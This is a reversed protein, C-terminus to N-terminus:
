GYLQINLDEILSTLEQIHRDEPKLSEIYRTLFEKPTEGQKLAQGTHRRSRVLRYYRGAPTNRNKLFYIKVRIRYLKEEAWIKLAKWLSIRDPRESDSVAAAATITRKGSFRHKRFIIFAAIAAASILIGFLILLPAASFSVEEGGEGAPMNIGEGLDPGVADYTEKPFLRSLFLLFEKFIRGLWSLAAGIGAFVGEFGERLTDGALLHILFACVLIAAIIVTIYLRDRGSLSSGDRYVIIGAFAAITGLIGPVAAPLRGSGLEIFLIYLMLLVALIDFCVTLMNISIGGTNEKFAMVAMILFFLGLFIGATVGTIQGLVLAAAMGALVLCINFAAAATMGKPKKLFLRSLFYSVLAYAFFLIYVKVPIDDRTQAPINFLMCAIAAIATQLMIEPFTRRIKM